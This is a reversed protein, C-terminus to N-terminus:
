RQADEAADQIDEGTKKMTEQMTAPEEKKKCGTITLCSLTIMLAAIVMVVNKCVQRM